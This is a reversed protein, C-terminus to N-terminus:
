LVLLLFVNYSFSFNGSGNWDATSKTDMLSFCFVTHVDKIYSAASSPQETRHMQSHDFDTYANRGAGRLCLWLLAHPLDKNRHKASGYPTSNNINPDEYSCFTSSKPNGLDMPVYWPLTLITSWSALYSCVHSDAVEAM